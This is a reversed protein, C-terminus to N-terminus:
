AGGPCIGGGADNGVISGPSSGLPNVEMVIVKDVFTPDGGARGIEIVLKAHPGNIEYLDTEPATVIADIHPYAAVVQAGTDGISIGASTHIQTSDVNIYTLPDSQDEVAFYFPAGTAPGNPGLPGAPYNPLWAGTDGCTTPDWIV